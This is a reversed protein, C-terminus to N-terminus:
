AAKPDILPPFGDDDLPPLAGTHANPRGGPDVEETQPETVVEVIDRADDEITITIKM